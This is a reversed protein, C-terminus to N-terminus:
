RRFSFTIRISWWFVRLSEKKLGVARSPPKRSPKLCSIVEQYYAQDSRLSPPHGWFSLHHGNRRLLKEQLHRVAKGAEPSVVLMTRPHSLLATLDLTALAAWMVEPEKEVVILHQDQNLLPLLALLHYGLGLGLAVLYRSQGLPTAQVLEQAEEWARRPSHLTVGRGGEGLVKLSPNKGALLRVRQFEPPTAPLSPLCDVDAPRARLLEYNREWAELGGGTKTEGARKM